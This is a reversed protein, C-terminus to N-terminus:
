GGDPALTRPAVVVVDGATVGSRVEVWNGESLGVEVRREVPDSADASSVFVVDIGEADVTLASM